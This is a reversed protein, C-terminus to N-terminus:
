YLKLKHKQENAYRIVKDYEAYKKSNGLKHSLHAYLQIMKDLYDKQQKKDQLIALRKDIRAIGKEGETMDKKM